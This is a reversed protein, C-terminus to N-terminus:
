EAFVRTGIWENLAESAALDNFPGGPDCHGISRIHLDRDVVLGVYDDPSEVILGSMGAQTMFASSLRGRMFEGPLTVLPLSAAITGLTTIGGSFAPADILVNCLRQLDYFDGEPMFPLWIANIGSREFRRKTKATVAPFLHEVFVIPQGTAENIQKFLYDWRPVCKQTNQLMGVLFGDPLGFDARTKSLPPMEPRELTLGSGPLRVLRESYHDQGDAPEMLDGSLFYDVTPLGSTLPFGWASCQVRALRMGAYQYNWSVQGIDTFILVDLDLSKIFRATAPVDGPVHYYHDATQRFKLNWADEKEHTAFVYSEIDKGHNRIWGLAWTSGNNKRINRSLYGVRIPGPKRPGEIPRALEPLARAVIPSIITRGHEALVDKVDRGLYALAYNPRAKIADFLEEAPFNMSAVERMTQVYYALWETIEDESDYVYPVQIRYLQELATSGRAFFHSRDFDTEHIQAQAQDVSQVYPPFGSPERGGIQRKGTEVIPDAEPPILAAEWFPHGGGLYRDVWSPDDLLAEIALGMEVQIHDLGSLYLGLAHGFGLSRINSQENVDPGLRCGFPREEGLCCKADILFPCKPRADSLRGDRFPLMSARYEEANWRLAQRAQEPLGDVVTQV